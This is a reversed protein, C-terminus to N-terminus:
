NGTPKSAPRNQVGKPRAKCQEARLAELGAARRESELLQSRMNDLTMDTETAKVRNLALHEAASRLEAALRAENVEKMQLTQRIEILTSDAVLLRGTLEQRLREDHVLTEALRGKDLNLVNVHKRLEAVEDQSQTISDALRIKEQSSLEVLDAHRSQLDCLEARVEALAKEIDVISDSLEENKALVEEILQNAQELREIQEQNLFAVHRDIEMNISRSVEQSLPRRSNPASPEGYFQEFCKAVTGSSRGCRQLINRYTTKIGTKELEMMIALFEKYVADDVRTKKM